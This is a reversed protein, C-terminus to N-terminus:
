LENCFDRFPYEDETLGYEALFDRYAQELEEPHQEYYIEDALQM